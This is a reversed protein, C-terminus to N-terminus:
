SSTNEHPLNARIVSELGALTVAVGGVAEFVNTGLVGHNILGGLGGIFNGLGVALVMYPIIERVFPHIIRDAQETEIEKSM